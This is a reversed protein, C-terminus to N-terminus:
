IVGKFMTVEGAAKAAPMYEADFAPTWVSEPKVTEIKRNRWVIDVVRIVPQPIRVIDHDILIRIV